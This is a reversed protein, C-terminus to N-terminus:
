AYGIFSDSEFGFEYKPRSDHIVLRIASPSFTRLHSIFELLYLCLFGYLHLCGALLM